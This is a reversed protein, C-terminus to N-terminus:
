KRDPDSKIIVLTPLPIPEGAAQLPVELSSLLERAITSDVRASHAYSSLVKALWTTLMAESGAATPDVPTGVSMSYLADGFIPLCCCYVTEVYGSISRSSTSGASTALRGNKSSPTGVPALIDASAYTFQISRNGNRHFVGFSGVSPLRAERLTLPHIDFPPVALVEPRRSLLDWQELNAKFDLLDVAHPYGACIGVHRERSLKAQLFTLRIELRPATRYVIILVDCLECRAPTRGWLGAGNFYVQHKPGHFEEVLYLPRLRGFADILARFLQVESFTATTAERTFAAHLRHGFSTM